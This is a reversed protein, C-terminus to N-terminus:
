RCVEAKDWERCSFWTWLVAFVGYIFDPYERFALLYVAGGVISIVIAFLAGYFIEAVSDTLFEACTKEKRILTNLFLVAVVPVTYM